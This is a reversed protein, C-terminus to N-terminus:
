IIPRKVENQSCLCEPFIDFEHKDEPLMEMRGWVLGISQNLISSKLWHKQTLLFCWLM